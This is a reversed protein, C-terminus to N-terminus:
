LHRADKTVNFAPCSEMLASAWTVAPMQTPFVSTFSFTNRVHYPLLSSKKNPSSVRISSRSRLTSRAILFDIHAVSHHPTSRRPPRGSHRVLQVLARQLTSHIRDGSWEARTGQRWVFADFTASGCAPVPTKLECVPKCAYRVQLIVERAKPTHHQPWHRLGSCHLLHLIVERAEPMHHQPWHRLGSRHLLHPLSTPWSPLCISGGCRLLPHHSPPSQASFM